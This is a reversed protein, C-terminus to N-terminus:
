GLLAEVPRYPYGFGFAKPSLISLGRETRFLERAKLVIVAVEMGEEICNNTYPQATRADMVQIMDPSTVFVEGNKYSVHNENKFWVRLETGAFEGAGTITHEGWYYGIKDWWVKKTVTGRCVLWGGLEGAAMEAPNQGSEEWERLKKGISYCETMTGSIITEKAEAGRMLFGAQGCTGYGAVSLQKGLREAMRWSCSKEIVAMDGYCDCSTIPLLERELIYPTTQQIEPIARGTYDGDLSVMGLEAATSICAAANAGGLEIPILGAIPAGAKEQLAKVAETMVGTWDYLADGLGYIETMEKVTEETRLAISGMLFPCCTLADDAVEDLTAFGIRNGKDLQKCLLEVGSRYDGGGGTGYFTLGRVLDEAEQKSTLYHIM